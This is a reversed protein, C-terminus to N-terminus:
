QSQLEQSVGHQHEQGWSESEVRQGVSWSGMGTLRDGGIVATGRGEKVESWKRNEGQDRFMM